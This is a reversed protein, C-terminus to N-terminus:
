LLCAILLSMPTFTAPLTLIGSHFVSLALPLCFYNRCHQSFSTIWTSHDYVHPLDGLFSYPLDPSIIDDHSRLHLDTLSPYPDQMAEMLEKSGPWSLSKVYIGCVRDNHGLAAIINDGHLDNARIVIPFVPWVDLIRDVPTGATCVLRLDLLRPAAFVVYRWRQCVHVLIEWTPKCEEKYDDDVCM